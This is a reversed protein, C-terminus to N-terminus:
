YLNFFRKIRVHCGVISAARIEVEFRAGSSLMANRKLFAKLDDAYEIVGYYKLVQPVRYDAFM